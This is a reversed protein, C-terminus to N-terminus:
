ISFGQLVRSINNMLSVSVSLVLLGALISYFGYNAVSIFFLFGLFILLGLFWNFGRLIVHNNRNSQSKLAGEENIELAWVM